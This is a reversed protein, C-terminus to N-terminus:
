GRTSQCRLRPGARLGGTPSVQRDTSRAPLRGTTAVSTNASCLGPGPSRKAQNRARFLLALMATHLASTAVMAARISVATAIAGVVPGGLVQGLADGQGLASLVTARVESPIVRTQWTNFLPESMSDVIRKCWIALLHPATSAAYPLFWATLAYAKTVEQRARESKSGSAKLVVLQRTSRSCKIVRTTM